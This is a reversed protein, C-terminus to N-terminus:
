KGSSVLDVETLGNDLKRASVVYAKAGNKGGLVHDSGEMHYEAGYGAKRARTYYFDIVDKADVPTVFNVVALMCGDADTGAAEQVAARPYVSLADPLRNAWSASYNVKAACDASTARSQEAVQAATSAGEFLSTASGEAAESAIELTGGAKKAADQRAAAIAEPSRQEPPLEVGSAAGAAAGAEGSLEPDTMLEGDVAGSLAPDEDAKKGAKDSGSCGALLAVTAIGVLLRRSTLTKSM